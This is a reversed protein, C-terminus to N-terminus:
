WGQVAFPALGAHKWRRRLEGFFTFTLKIGGFIGRIVAWRWKNWWNTTGTLMRGLRRL